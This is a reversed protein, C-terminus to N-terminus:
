ETTQWAQPVLDAPFGIPHRFANELHEDDMYHKESWRIARRPVKFDVQLLPLLFILRAM